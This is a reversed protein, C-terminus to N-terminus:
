KPALKRFETLMENHLPKYQTSIRNWEDEASDVNLFPFNNMIQSFLSQAVSKVTDPTAAGTNHKAKRKKLKSKKQSIKKKIKKIANEDKENQLDLSLQNIEKNWRHIIQDHTERSTHTTGETTGSARSDTSKGRSRKPLGAYLDKVEQRKEKAMEEEGAAVHDKIERKLNKIQNLKEQVEPSPLDSPNNEAM